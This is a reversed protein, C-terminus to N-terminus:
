GGLIAKNIIFNSLSYSSFILVLGLSAWILISRGKAVKEPNGASFMWIFGGYIFMLLALSGVVGLAAKIIRGIFMPVTIHTEGDPSLPDTLKVTSGSGEGEQALSTNVSLFSFIMVTFILLITIKKFM